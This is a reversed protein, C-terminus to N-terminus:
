PAKCASPAPARVEYLAVDGWRARLQLAGDAVAREWRRRLAATRGPATDSSGARLLRSEGVLLHTVCAADLARALEAPDPAADLAEALRWEEFVSDLRYPRRLYYAYGRMWLLYVRGSPPVLAELSRMPPYSEPLMAARADDVSLRGALWAWTPQRSWLHAYGGAGWALGAACLGARALPAAPGSVLADVAVALAAALPPVAVLFFRAQAVTLTFFVGFGALVVAVFALPRRSEASAPRALLRAAGLAGLAIVPGVSGEFGHLFDRAFFVRIPTTLAGLGEGAGYGRLTEWYAEARVEDWGRGGFTGYGMPFFPNGREVANRVYFPAALAVALALFRGARGVAATQGEPDRGLADLVLAGALILMWALGLYKTSAAMAAFAAAPAVSARDGSVARVAFTTALTAALVLPPEVYASSGVEVFSPVLLLLVGALPASAQAGLARALGVTALAAAASCAVGVLRPNFWPNFDPPGGLAHLLALASEYALPLSAFVNNDPRVYGGAQAFARPLALHYVMEDRDWPPYLAMAAYGALALLGLALWPSLRPRAMGKWPRGALLAAAAGLATWGIVTAPRLAHTFCLLTGGVELWGLALAFAVAARTAGDLPRTTRRQWAEVPGLACFALAALVLVRLLNRTWM